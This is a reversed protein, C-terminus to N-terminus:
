VTTVFNGDEEIKIIKYKEYDKFFEAIHEQSVDRDFQVFHVEQGAIMLYTETGHIATWVQVNGYNEEVNMFAGRLGSKEPISTIQNVRCNAM